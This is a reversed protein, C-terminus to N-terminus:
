LVTHLGSLSSHIVTSIRAQKQFQDSNIMQYMKQKLLLRIKLAKWHKFSVTIQLCHVNLHVLDSPRRKNQYQLLSTKQRTSELSSYSNSSSVSKLRVEFCSLKKRLFTGSSNYVILLLCIGEAIMFHYELIHIQVCFLSNKSCPVFFSVDCRLRLRSQSIVHIYRMFACSRLARGTQAFQRHM